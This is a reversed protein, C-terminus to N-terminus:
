HQAIQVRALAPRSSLELLVYHSYFFAGALILANRGLYRGSVGFM